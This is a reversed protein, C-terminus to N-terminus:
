IEIFGLRIANLVLNASNASNTKRLLSTRHKDVTKPSIFLVKGIETNSLGKCICSLVEKERDSLLTPEKIPNPATNSVLNKLIQQSFYERGNLVTRIAFEFEDKHSTKTLFGKVGIQVLKSYYREEDHSSLVIIKLEPYREIAKKSAEIGDMEPMAIDIIVIAPIHYDLIELFEKGNNAEAYIEYGSINSLIYKLGDRFMLHDDVLVIDINPNM